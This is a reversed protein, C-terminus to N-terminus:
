LRERLSREILTQKKLRRSSYLLSVALSYLGMWHGTFSNIPTSGAFYRKFFLFILGGMAYIILLGTMISMWRPCAGRIANKIDKTDGENHLNKSIIWASYVALFGGVNILITLERPPNYIHFLASFHIVASLILGIASILILLILRVGGFKITIM